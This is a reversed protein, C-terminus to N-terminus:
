RTMGALPRSASRAEIMANLVFRRLRDYRGFRIMDRPSIDGLLPNSAKFWAITRDADGDFGVAVMNMISAIEEFRERVATPMADDYRVSSPAVSAIKAVDDKKLALLSSVRKADLSRGLGLHLTDPPVTAFLDHARALDTPRDGTAQMMHKDLFIFSPHGRKFWTEGLFSGCPYRM